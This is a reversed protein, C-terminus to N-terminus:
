ANTFGLKEMGKRAGALKAAFPGWANGSDKVAVKLAALGLGRADSFIKSFAGAVLPLAAGGIFAAGAVSSFSAGFRKGHEKGLQTAANGIGQDADKKFNSFEPKIRVFASAVARAAM